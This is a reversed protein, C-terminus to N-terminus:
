VFASSPTFLSYIHISMMRVTYISQTEPKNKSAVIKNTATFFSFFFFFCDGGWDLHEREPNFHLITKVAQTFFFFIVILYSWFFLLFTLFIQFFYIYILYLVFSSIDYFM